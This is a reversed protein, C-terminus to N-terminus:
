PAPAPSAEGAQSVLTRLQELCAALRQGCGADLERAGARIRCEGPPLREDPVLQWRQVQEPAAAGIRRYEEPNLRVEVGTVEVPLGALAEEVFQLLREPRAELEGRVVQRAVQEVLPVLQQRLGQRHQEQLESLGAMLAQVPESLAKLGEAVLTRAREAGAQQGAAYGEAHGQAYGELRAQELQEPSPQAAQEELLAQMGEAGALTRVRALPPFSYRRYPLAPSM